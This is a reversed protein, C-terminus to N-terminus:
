EKVLLDAKNSIKVSDKRRGVSINILTKYSFM